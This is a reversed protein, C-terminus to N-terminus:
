AGPERVEGTEAGRVAACVEDPGEFNTLCLSEKDNAPNGAVFAVKWHKGGYGKLIGECEALADCLDTTLMEMKNNM